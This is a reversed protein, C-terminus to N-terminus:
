TPAPALSGVAFEAISTEELPNLSTAAAFATSDGGGLASCALGMETALLYLSQMIVGANLLSLRYAIGEYKWAIRPFRTALIILVQPPEDPKAWAAAADKLLALLQDEAAPLRYLAHQDSHYHYLGAELGICRQVALYSEIEHIAGAAPVPRLLLEQYEGPLHQQVRVTYYLLRAVQSLSIARASQERVSRRRELVAALDDGQRRPGAVRPPIPLQIANESMPPKVAAPACHHGLFRFTGAQVGSVRGARTRWHFLLDQFEWCLRDEPEDVDTRELFGTSWLLGAFDVFCPGGQRLARVPVPRGFRSLWTMLDLCVLELRCFAEPSELVVAQGDRRVYAFRSLAVTATLTLPEQRFRFDSSMATIRAREAGNASWVYELFGGSRLGEIHRELNQTGWPGGRSAISTLEMRCVDSDALAALADAIHINETETRWVAGDNSLLTLVCGARDVRLDRRLRYSLRAEVNSLV